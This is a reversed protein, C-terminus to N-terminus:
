NNTQNELAKRVIEGYSSPTFSKYDDLLCPCGVSHFTWATWGIELKQSYDIVAKVAEISMDQNPGFEGLFVPYKQSIKGFLDEFMQSENYPNSRYVINEYPMPNDLYENIRRGWNMGSVFILSKPHIRRVRTILDTYAQRIKDWSTDHPEPILDYLILPDDKYFQAVAEWMKKMEENPLDDNNLPVPVYNHLIVYVGHKRAPSVIQDELRLFFEAKDKKYDSLYVRSRIVNAHWEKIAYDVAWANWNDVGWNISAINVGRLIVPQNNANIIKNGQTHLWSVQPAEPMFPLSIKNKMPTVILLKRIEWIGWQGAKYGILGLPLAILVIFKFLKTLTKM